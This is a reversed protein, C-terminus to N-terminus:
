YLHTSSLIKIFITEYDNGGKNYTFHWGYSNGNNARLTRVWLAMIDDQIFSNFVQEGDDSSVSTIKTSDVAIKGDETEVVTLIKDGFTGYGDPNVGVKLRPSEPITDNKIIIEYWGVTNPNGEYLQRYKDKIITFEPPYIFSIGLEDNRYTQWDSTDIEEVQEEGDKIEDLCKPKSYTECYMRTCGVIDSDEKRFCNNCGDNFNMCTDQIIEKWSVSNYVQGEKIPEIIPKGAPPTIDNQLGIGVGIILAVLSISIVILFLSVHNGLHKM